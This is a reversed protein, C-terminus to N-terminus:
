GPLSLPPRCGRLGRGAGLPGPTFGPHAKSAPPYSSKEFTVLGRTGSKSLRCRSVQFRRGACQPKLEMDQMRAAFAFDIRCEGGQNLQLGAREHVLRLRGPALRVPTTVKFTSTAAVRSSNWDGEEDWRGGEVGREEG